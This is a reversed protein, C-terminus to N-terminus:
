NLPILPPKCCQSRNSLWGDRFPHLLNLPRVIGRRLFLDSILEHAPKPPSTVSNAEIEFGTMWAPHSLKTPIEILIENTEIMIESTEITTKIFIEITDINDVTEIYAIEGM